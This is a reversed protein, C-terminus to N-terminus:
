KEPLLVVDTRRRLDAVWDAILERRRTVALRDRLVPAVQEYTQGAQDFEARQRAYAAAVEPDTPTAATAFRQALYAQVRLNDRIWARLRKDTFGVTDMARQFATTDPFRHQVEDWQADVTADAPEPPAYRQVERLILEREVLRATVTPVDTAGNLDVLELVTAARADSLTIVQGGVIALTREILEGRPAPPAQAAAGAPAILALVVLIALPMLLGTGALHPARQFERARRDAAPAHEGQFGLGRAAPWDAFSVPLGRGSTVRMENLQIDGAYKYVNGADAFWVFQLNKWYPARTELNFVAMGNGGQPFGQPDLTEVTGLRDLAFGRVTTDGGSFFRESAPLDKVTAQSNLVQAVGVAVGLRAGMAVVIKRGPLRRYLFGQAFSKVFGVESGLIRAAVSGDIGVVAGRQPDLVDDRSDRLM